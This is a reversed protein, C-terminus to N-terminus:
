FSALTDAKEGLGKMTLHGQAGKIELSDYRDAPYTIHFDELSMGVNPFHRFMALRVKGFSLTGDVYEEAYKDLIRTLVSPSLAIQLIVLICIWIGATWAAAKLLRRLISSKKPPAVDNQVTHTTEEKM